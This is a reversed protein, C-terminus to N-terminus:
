DIKKNCFTLIQNEVSKINYLTQKLILLRENKPKDSLYTNFHGPNIKRVSDFFSTIIDSKKNVTAFIAPDIELIKYKYLNIKNYFLDTSILTSDFHTDSMAEMIYNNIEVSKNELYDAKPFWTSAKLSTKEDKLKILIDRYLSDNQTRLSDMLTNLRNNIKNFDSFNEQHNDACSIIAIITLLTFSALKLKIRM